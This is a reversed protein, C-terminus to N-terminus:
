IWIKRFIFKKITNAVSSIGKKAMFSDTDMQDIMNIRLKVNNPIMSKLKSDKEIIYLGKALYVKM